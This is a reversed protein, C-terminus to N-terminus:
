SSLSCCYLSFSERGTYYERLFLLALSLCTLPAFSLALCPFVATFSSIGQFATQPKSHYSEQSSSNLLSEELNPIWTTCINPFPSITGPHGCSLKLIPFTLHPSPRCLRLLRDQPGREPCEAHCPLWQLSRFIRDGFWM